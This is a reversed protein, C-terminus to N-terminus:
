RTVEQNRKNESTDRDIRFVGSSLENLITTIEKSGRRLKGAISEERRQEEGKEQSMQQSEGKEQETQQNEQLQLNLEMHQVNSTLTLLFISAAVALGVKLSYIMLQVQRSTEKLKVSAQVDLQRTRNLIEEKLYRPPEELFVPEKKEPEAEKGSFLERGAEELLGEEMWNGFQEACFTCAGIHTFFDTEERGKLRGEQWDCFLDRSIHMTKLEPEKPEKLQIKMREETHNKMM